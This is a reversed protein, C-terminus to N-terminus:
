PHCLVMTWPLPSRVEIVRFYKEVLGIFEQRSWHQIHGPTNGWENWYKGRAMNLMRWVPELPVSLILRTGSISRLVQLAKEPDELHELVECCVVLDARDEQPDLDYISRTIFPDTMLQHHIANQRAIDIIQTSFDSGRVFYGADVWQIVWYGEGCGVEHITQPNAKKVFTSLTSRYGDMLRREIPNQSAYKDYTNGIVVGQDVKGASIKL